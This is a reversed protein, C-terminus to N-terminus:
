VDQSCGIPIRFCGLPVPKHRATLAAALKRWRMPVTMVKMLRISARGCRVKSWKGVPDLSVGRAVLAAALEHRRTKLTNARLTLPWM